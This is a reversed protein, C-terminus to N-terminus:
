AAEARPRKGAVENLFTVEVTTLFQERENLFAKTHPQAEHAEFAARDAYLEYFVRVLPEDVPQHVVYALTGPETNIGQLTHEVLADFREAAETNRLTFRVVLAYGSNQM